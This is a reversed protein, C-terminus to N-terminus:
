ILQIKPFFAVYKGPHVAIGRPKHLENEILVKQLTGELNAVEITRKFSDTWYINRSVWDIAIGEPATTFGEFIIEASSGNNTAKYINGKALDGWYIFGTLCDIDISVINQESKIFLPYGNDQGDSKLPMRLVSMGQAFLIYDGELIPMPECDYGDGIFGYHCKCMFDRTYDNFICEANQHCIYRDERCSRLPRCTQGDGVFGSICHCRYNQEYMDFICEAKVDCTNLQNCSIHKKCSKGDGM